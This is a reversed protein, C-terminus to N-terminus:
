EVEEEVEETAEKPIYRYPKVGKEKLAQIFVENSALNYRIQVIERENGSKDSYQKIELDHLYLDIKEM